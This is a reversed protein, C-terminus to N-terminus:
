QWQSDARHMDTLLGILKRRDLKGTNTMPLEGAALVHVVKPTKYSSLQAAAAAIIQKAIVTVNSLPVVIAGVVVDRRPDPVGYVYAQAVGPISKLVTEVEQPSVNAGATKIQDDSRGHFFLHGDRISCLDGTRYWGNADFIDARDRKVLGLMMCDGRVLLEGQEGAACIAGSDQRVIRWEMGPMLPGMSGIRDDPVNALSLSHPGCSETMGLANGFFPQNKRRLAPPIAETVGGGKVFSFDRQAFTPDDVLSRAIYPWVFLYTARERELFDLLKSGSHASSLVSMGILMGHLLQVVLGGVWFLPSSIFSRDDREYGYSAACRMASRLFNAHSHIVGKPEAVSGSSYIISIPDSPAVQAEINRLLEASAPPAANLDIRQAWAPVQEAWFWIGRLYPTDPLAFPTRATACQLADSLRAIYDHKLFRDIAIIV